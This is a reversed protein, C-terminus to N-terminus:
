KNNVWEPMIKWPKERSVETGVLAGKLLLMTWAKKTFSIWFNRIWKTCISQLHDNIYEEIKYHFLNYYFQNSLLM